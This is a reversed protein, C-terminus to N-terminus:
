PLESCDSSRQRIEPDVGPYYRRVDTRPSTRGDAEPRGRINGLRSGGAAIFYFSVPAYDFEPKRGRLSLEIVSGM